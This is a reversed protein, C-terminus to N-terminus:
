GVVLEGRDIRSLHAPKAILPPSYVNERYSPSRIRQLLSRKLHSVSAIPTTAGNSAVALNLAFCGIGLQAQERTVLPAFYQEM